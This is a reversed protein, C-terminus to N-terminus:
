LLSKTSQFFFILVVINTILLILTLMHDSVVTWLLYYIAYEVIYRTLCFCVDEITEKLPVASKKGEIFDKSFDM